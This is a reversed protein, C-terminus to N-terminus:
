VEQLVHPSICFLLNGWASTKSYRLQLNCAPGFGYWCSRNKLKWSSRQRDHHHHRKGASHNSFSTCHHFQMCMLGGKKLRRFWLWSFYISTSIRQIQNFPTIPAHIMGCKRQKIWTPKVINSVDKSCSLSSNSGRMQAACYMILVRPQQSRSLRKLRWTSRSFSDLTKIDIESWSLCSLSWFWHKFFYEIEM